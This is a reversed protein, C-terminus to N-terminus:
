FLGQHQSLNFTPPSPSSLPHSPQIADGVWHAHTQPLEPLHHLVPFGPTSCDLPNCLILHSQTVLCCLLWARLHARLFSLLHFGLIGAGFLQPTYWLLSKLSGLRKCRRMCLSTSFEKVQSIQNEKVWLISQINVSGARQQLSRYWRVGGRQVGVEESCNEWPNSSISERRSSPRFIGVSYFM